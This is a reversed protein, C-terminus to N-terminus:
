IASFVTLSSFMSDSVSPEVTKVLSFPISLFLSLDTRERLFRRRRMTIERKTTIAKNTPPITPTPYIGSSASSPTEFEGDIEM